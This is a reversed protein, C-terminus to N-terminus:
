WSEYGVDDGNAPTLPRLRGHDIWGNVRAKGAGADLILYRGTPDTDFFREFVGEYPTGSRVRYLVQVPGGALPIRVATQTCTGHRPCKSLYATLASGDPTIFADSLSTGRPTLRSPKLLVRGANLSGGRTAPSYARVQVDNPTGSCDSLYRSRHCRSEGLVLENGNRTFSVNFANTFGVKGPVYPGSQWLTRHGTRTSIVFIGVPISNTYIKGSPGPRLVETAVESGDPAAAIGTALEGKFKGGPVPAYGTVRGSGTVRFRYIVSDWRQSDAVCTMFFIQGQAAAFPGNCHSHPLPDRITGTVRGTARARVVAPGDGDLGVYYRPPGSPGHSSAVPAGGLRIAGAAFAAGLTCALVAALGASLAQTARRRVVRRRVGAVTVQRPPEGVVKNLLDQVDKEMGM